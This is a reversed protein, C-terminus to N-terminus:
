ETGSIGFDVDDDTEWGSISSDNDNNSDTDSYQGRSKLLINEIAEELLHGRTQYHVKKKEVHSIASKWDKM